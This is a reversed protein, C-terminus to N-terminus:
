RFIRDLDDFSGINAWGYDNFDGQEGDEPPNEFIESDKDFQATEEILFNILILIWCAHMLLLFITLSIFASDGTSSGNESSKIVNKSANTCMSNQGVKSVNSSSPDPGDSWSDLCNAPESTGYKSNGDLKVELEAKITPNKEESTSITSTQQNTEKKTPHGFLVPPKEEIQDPYPVIHDDSEGAEGWIINTM